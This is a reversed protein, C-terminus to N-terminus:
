FGREKASWGQQMLAILHTLAEEYSRGTQRALQRARKELQSAMIMSKDEPCGLSTLLAALDQTDMLLFAPPDLGGANVVPLL